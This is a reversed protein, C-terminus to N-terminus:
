ERYEYTVSLMAKPKVLLISLIGLIFVIAALPPIFALFMCVFVLLIFQGAIGACSRSGPIFTQNIPFYGAKAMSEADREFMDVTQSHTGKYVRVVTRM